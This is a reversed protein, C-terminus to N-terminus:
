QVDYALTPPGEHEKDWIYWAHNFSPAAKKDDFWVIRKTLVLKKSFYPCDKFLHTRGKAHDFDTRLLMAVVFQSLELAKEIFERAMAYPPNTIIARCLPASNFALFDAGDAIDTPLVEFGKSQLAQVMKGNGCAPEWIIDPSSFPLHPVLALTVWEPTEYLDREVREYGSQRQSM